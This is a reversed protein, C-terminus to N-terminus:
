RLRRTWLLVTAVPLSSHQCQPTASLPSFLSGLFKTRVQFTLNRFLECVKLRNTENCSLHNSQFLDRFVEESDQLQYNWLHLAAKSDLSPREDSGEKLPMVGLDSSPPLLGYM